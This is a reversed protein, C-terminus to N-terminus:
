LEFIVNFTGGFTGSSEGGKGYGPIYYAHGPVGQKEYFRAKYRVTWGLNIFKWIQTQIGFLIEGWHAAGKVSELHFPIDTNWNGDHFDPGDLDYNFASLGYRAGIYYRNHSTRKKNLNYDIGVRFYPAHVNYHINSRTDTHNSQGIGVEVVPFYKGKIGFHAGAEYQGWKAFQAMALGALDTYISYGSFLPVEKKEISVQAYQVGKFGSASKTSDPPTTLARETTEITSIRSADHPAAAAKASIM